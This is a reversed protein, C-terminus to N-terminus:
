SVNISWSYFCDGGRKDKGWKERQGQSLFYFYLHNDNNFKTM